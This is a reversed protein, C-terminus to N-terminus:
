QRIVYTINSYQYVDFHFTIHTSSTESYDRDENNGNTGTSAALLQGDLYVDMNSGQQGSTSDPTYSLTVPLQHASGASIDSAVVETHKEGVGDAVSTSLDYMETDLTNLLDTISQGNTLYNNETFIRSGFEDNIVDLADKVSSPNSDLMYSGSISTWSPSSMNDTAGTYSQLNVIDEVIVADGEWSTVFNTRCWEHEAVDNLVKRYPYLMMISSPDGSTTTYAGAETYFKVYVDTGDGTGGHDAADHFKAYIINGSGDRFEAGTNMDILDIGVVRDQGGEDYYSGSNATSQYIPLGRRDSATAYALSTTYLFGADGPNITYGAGSNSEEVPLLMTNADLTNNKINALNLEKNESNLGDTDSPDFYNGNSDFWNTTGKIQKTLTRIVNLDHELVSDSSGSATPTSPEAVAITNVGSVTDTYTASRRIQEYQTLLSRQTSPKDLGYVVLDPDTYYLSDVNAEYTITGESTVNLTFTAIGNADTNQSNGGVFSGINDGSGSITVPASEVDEGNTDTVHVKIIAQDGTYAGGQSDDTFEVKNIIAFGYTSFKYADFSLTKQGSNWSVNDVRGANEGSVTTKITGDYATLTSFGNGYDVTIFPKDSATFTKSVTVYNNEDLGILQGIESDPAIYITDRELKLGSFDRGDFSLQSLNASNFEVESQWQTNELTNATASDFGLDEFDTKWNTSTDITPEVFTFTVSNSTFPGIGSETADKFQVYAYQPDNHRALRATRSSTYPLWEAGSITVVGEGQVLELGWLKYHTPTFGSGAFLSVQVTLGASYSSGNNLEINGPSTSGDTEYGLTFYNAM